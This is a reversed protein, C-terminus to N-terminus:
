KKSSESPCKKKTCETKAESSCDGCCSSCGASLVVGASAVAICLAKILSKSM